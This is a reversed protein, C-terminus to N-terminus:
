PTSPTSTATVSYGSPLTPLAAIQDTNLDCVSGEKLSVFVTDKGKQYKTVLIQEVIGPKNGSFTYNAM